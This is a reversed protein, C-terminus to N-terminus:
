ASSEESTAVTRYAVCPGADSSAPQHALRRADDARFSAVVHVGRGPQGRARRMAAARRAAIRRVLSENVGTGPPSARAGRAIPRGSGISDEEGPMSGCDTVALLAGPAERATSPVVCLGPVTSHEILDRILVDVLVAAIRARWGSQLASARGRSRSGPHPAPHRYARSFTAFGRESPAAARFRANRALRPRPRRAPGPLPGVIRALWPLAAAGSLADANHGQAYRVSSM